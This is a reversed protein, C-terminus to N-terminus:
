FVVWDKAVHGLMLLFDCRFEDDDATSMFFTETTM